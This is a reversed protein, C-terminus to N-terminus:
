VCDVRGEYGDSVNCSEKGSLSLSDSHTRTHTHTHETMRTMIREHEVKTKAQLGSLIITIYKVVLVYKM